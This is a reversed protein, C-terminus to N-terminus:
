ANPADLLGHRELFDRTPPIPQVVDVLLGTPDETLFHRQGWEEDRVDARIPAGVDAARLFLRDVDDLELTIVVGAPRHRYSAPVSEHDEAMFALQIAPNAPHTLQVYWGM